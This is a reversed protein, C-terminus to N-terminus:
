KSWRGTELLPQLGEVPSPPSFLYGQAADCHISELCKWQEKKEVGEAVVNMNLSHAISIVATTIVHGYHHDPLDHIFSKDIKLTDVDFQKLYSLSSYGAGFDDISIRVGLAKIHKLNEIVTQENQMITSETMELELFQPDLGSEDLINKIHHHFDKEQLQKMSVNVSMRIPQYGEEQWRKNQLCAERLVWRGISHILGTEEALPIFIGPSIFGYEPHQWRLLAEMGIVEGSVLDIIPQYYVALQGREIAYHLDNELLAPQLTHDEMEKAFLCYTNKGSRKAEYMAMDARKILEDATVGDQPIFVLGISATIRLDYSRINFPKQMNHLINKVVTVAEDQNAIQPLLIIFEDGGLRSVTATDSVSSLLRGAVERLLEDGIDHGLSDNIVKFRDLDLYLLASLHNDRKAASLTQNLREQLLRRNPLHTLADYHALQQVQKEYLKRQTIDKAICFVGTVSENVVIPVSTINLHIREGQKNQFCMEFNQPNGNLTERFAKLTKGLDEMVVLLTFSMNLLEKRSYGSLAIAAKNATLFHGNVDLTFVADTNYKFLSKYRQESEELKRKTREHGLALSALSSFTDILKLEEHTPTLPTRHYIAFTGLVKNRADVIPMSWCSALGHDLAIQKFDAWLPDTAINEVIVLKKLYAATGCSGACSGIHIGNIEKIFEQPLSPAAGHFLQNGKLLMISCILGPNIREATLAIETLIDELPDDNAMMNLIRQHGMLLMESRNQASIDGHCYFSYKSLEPRDNM